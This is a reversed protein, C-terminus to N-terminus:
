GPEDASILYFRAIAVEFEPGEASRMTYAGEMTGWPTPLPCWSSYEFVDGAEIRPQQGVVGEGQVEHTRGHADVIAWRRRLLQVAHPRENTIRIRYAFVYQRRDPDSQEADFSPSVAVRM